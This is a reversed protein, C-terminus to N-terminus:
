HGSAKRNDKKQVAELKPIADEEKSITNDETSKTKHQSREEIGKMMSTGQFIGGEAINLSKVDIDGVVKGSSTITLLGNAQITGKIFGSNYVNRAKINAMVMGKKGVILDGKCEVEGTVKGEIRLSAQSHIIGEQVSKEGILTDTMNLNAAGREKRFM